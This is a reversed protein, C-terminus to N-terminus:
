NMFFYITKKSYFHEIAWTGNPVPLDEILIAFEDGNVRAVTDVKRAREQLRKSAEILLQDGINHGLSDNINKFQDLDTPTIGM